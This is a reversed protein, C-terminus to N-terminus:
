GAVNGRIRGGCKPCVEDDFTLRENCGSCWRQKISRGVVYGVVGAGAVIGWFIMGDTIRAVVGVLFAILALAFALKRGKNKEIRDVETV